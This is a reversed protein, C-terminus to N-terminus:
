EYETWQTPGGTGSVKVCEIPLGGNELIRKGEEVRAGRVTRTASRETCSHESQPLQTKRPGPERQNRSVQDAVAFIYRRSQSDVRTKIDYELM